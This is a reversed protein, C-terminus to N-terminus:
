SEELHHKGEVDAWPHITGSGLLRVMFEGRSLRHTATTAMQGQSAPARLQPLTMRLLGLIFSNDRNVLLFPCTAFSEFQYLLQPNGGAEEGIGTMLVCMLGTQQGLGRAGLHSFLTYFCM